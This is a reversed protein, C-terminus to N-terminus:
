QMGSLRAFKQQSEASWGSIVDQVTGSADILVSLPVSLQDTAYIGEIAATGGILNLYSVQRKELYGKVNANPATDLNLGVVDINRAALNASIRQLEPMERACPVCWTAWLNIITSRGPKLQQALTTAEGALTKVPIAPFPQGVRLKLDRTMLASRSLPEPLQMRRESLVTGEPKTKATGEQLLISTGALAGQFKEVEGSPWTVEIADVRTDKGLGFLLRPDHQSLFGSGASKIKALTGASTQVRVVAGNADRGSKTGQLAVRLFSNNQGVNNRFLLHGQGQIATVFVDPDGDNDFDAFVAARGDTISDIGSVGSIDLLKKAGLNLFLTDREYGSFSFGEGFILQNQDARLAGKEASKGKDEQTM